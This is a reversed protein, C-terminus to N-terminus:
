GSVVKNKKFIMNKAQIFMKKYFIMNVILSEICAVAFVKIALWVWSIYNLVDTSMHYTSAIIVMVVLVDVFIHKFFHIISRNLIAKSIYYAFYITRYTMAALMGVSVGVLGFKHVCLVSIVIHLVAEIIASTQTQKYHGAAMVMINYPLRLCYVGYSLSIMIGFVFNYYNADTVGKTYVMVFPVILVGVCVFIVTIVTHMLWEFTAYTKNLTAMEKKAYMNGLLAQIGTIMSTIMSKVGNVVLFYVSYVSVSELTSFLTLVVTPTNTLVVSAIHQFFGNWKQKIPEGTFKIKLNINYRKDIIWKLVLPQILFVFASGLKVIHVSFGLKMLIVSILTNLILVISHTILHIFGMQDANLLVRYTIFLYHQALYSFSIIPVLACVYGFSFEGSTSIPYAVMLVVTYIGLIWMIRNFFRKSSVVIKSLEDDDKDALPKYMASQVVAGVGCELLTVFSLFHQVSSVLGNVASGFYTLFIRPLIFSCVITIIQYILSFMLNYAMKKKRTIM